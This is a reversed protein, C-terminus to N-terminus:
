TITPIKDFAFKSLVNIVFGFMMNSYDVTSYLEITIPNGTPVEALSFPANAWRTGSVGNALIESGSKTPGTAANWTLTKGGYTAPWTKSGSTYGTSNWWAILGSSVIPLSQGLFGYGTGSSSGITEILPSM